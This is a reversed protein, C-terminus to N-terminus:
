AILWRFTYLQFLESQKISADQQDNTERVRRGQLHLLYNGGFRHIERLSCPTIDWFIAPRGKM